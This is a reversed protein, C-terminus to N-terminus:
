NDATAAKDAVVMCSVEDRLVEVYGQTIAYEHKNNASDVVTVHGKELSSVIPAHGKLIQFQGQTGPVKISKISGRFLEEEPTIIVLEM